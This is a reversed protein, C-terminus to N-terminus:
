YKNLRNTSLSVYLHPLSVTSNPSVTPKATVPYGTFGCSSTYSPYASSYVDPGSGYPYRAENRLKLLLCKNCDDGGNKTINGLVINCYNGQNKLCTQQFNFLLTDAVESIPYVTGWENSYTAGSCGAAVSKRYELLEGRCDSTCIKDLGHQSYFNNSSLSHVASICSTLNTTLADACQDNYDGVSNDPVPQFCTILTFLSLFLTYRALSNVFSMTPLMPLYNPSQGLRVDEHVFCYIHISLAM